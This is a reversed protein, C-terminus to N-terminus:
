LTVKRLLVSVCRLLVFLNLTKEFDAFLNLRCDLTQNFVTVLLYAIITAMRDQATGVRVIPDLRTFLLPSCSKEADVVNM